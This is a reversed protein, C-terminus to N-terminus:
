KLAEKRMVMIYKGQEMYEFGLSTGPLLHKLNRPIGPRLSIAMM